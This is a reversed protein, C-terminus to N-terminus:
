HFYARYWVYASLALATCLCVNTLLPSWNGPVPSRGTPQEQAEPLEQERHPKRLAKSTPDDVDPLDEGDSPPQPDAVNRKRVNGDQSFRFRFVIDSRSMESRMEHM